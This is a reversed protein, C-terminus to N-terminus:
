SWINEPISRVLQDIFSENYLWLWCKPKVGSLIISLQIIIVIQVDFEKELIKM